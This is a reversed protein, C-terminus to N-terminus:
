TSTQTIHKWTKGIRIARINNGSVKYKRGLASNSDVHNNFIELVQQESLKSIAVDVGKISRGREVKDKMNDANTGELLHNPNICKINDCTHRIMNGNKISGFEQEYMYRHLRILKGDIMIRFYGNNTSVHSTCEWCGDKTIEYTIDRARM